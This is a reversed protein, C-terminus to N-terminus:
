AHEIGNGNSTCKNPKNRKRFDLWVGYSVIALAPILIVIMHARVRAVLGYNALTIATGVFLPILSFYAITTAARGRRLIKAGLPIALTLVFLLLGDLGVILMPLSSWSTPWPGFVGIAKSLVQPLSTRTVNTPSEVPGADLAPVTPEDVFPERPVALTQSSSANSSISKERRDSDIVADVTPRTVALVTLAACVVILSVIPILRAPQEPLKRSKYALLLAAAGSGCVLVLTLQSRTFWLAVYTGILFPFASAWKGRYILSSTLAALALLTFSLSERRLWPSWLVVPPLVAGLWAAIRASNGTDFNLTASALFIPTLGSLIALAFLPLLPNPGSFWYLGAILWVLSEKGPTLPRDPAQGGAWSEALQQVQQEYVLADGSLGFILYLSIGLAM